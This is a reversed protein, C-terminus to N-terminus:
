HGDGSDAQIGVVGKPVVLGDEPQSVVPECVQQGLMMVAVADVGTQRGRLLAVKTQVPVADLPEGQRHDFRGHLQGAARTM